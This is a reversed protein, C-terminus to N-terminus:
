TQTKKQCPKMEGLISSIIETIEKVFQYITATQLSPNCSLLLFEQRIRELKVLIVGNEGLVHIPTIKEYDMAELYYKRITEENDVRKPCDPDYIVLEKTAEGIRFLTQSYFFSQDKLLVAVEYLDAVLLNVHYITKNDYEEKMFCPEELSTEDQCSEPEPYNEEEQYDCIEIKRDLLFQRAEPTLRNNSQLQFKVFPNKRYKDKLDRETIFIM